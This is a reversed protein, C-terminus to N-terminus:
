RPPALKASWSRSAVVRGGSRVVSGVTVRLGHHRRLLAVARRSLPIRVTATEGERLRTVAGGLVVATSVRAKSSRGHTSAPISAKIFSVAECGPFHPPCNVTIGTNLSPGGARAVLLAPTQGSFWQAAPAAVPTSAVSAPAPVPVVSANLGVVNLSPYANTIFLMSANKEGLTSPEFAVTVSCGAGPLMEHGSCGDSQVPFMLPTGSILFDQQVFLPYDGSNTITITHPVVSGILVEGLLAQRTNFSLKPGDLAEGEFKVVLPSTASDSAIVLEAHKVGITTPDFEIGEDCSNNSSLTYSACDGYAIKFSSADPGTLTVSEISTGAVSNEINLQQTEGGNESGPRDIPRPSFSIQSASLQGSIADATLPVVTTAGESDTAELDAEKIGPKGTAFQVEVSCGGPSLLTVGTCGDYVISYSGSDAGSLGVGKVTVEGASQDYFSVSERQTSFHFDVQGFELQAPAAALSGPSALAPAAGFAVAACALLPMLVLKRLM